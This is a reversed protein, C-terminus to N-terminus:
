YRNTDWLYTKGDLVIEQCTFFVIPKNKWNIFSIYNFRNYNHNLKEMNLYQFTQTFNLKLHKLSAGQAM